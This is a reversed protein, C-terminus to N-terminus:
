FCRTKCLLIYKRDINIKMNRFLLQDRLDTKKLNQLNLVFFSLAKRKVKALVAERWYALASVTWVPVGIRMVKATPM